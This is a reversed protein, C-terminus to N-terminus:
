RAGHLEQFARTFIGEPGFIGIRVETWGGLADIKWLDQVEPYRDAFERGVSPDRLADLVQTAGRQAAVPRAPIFSEFDRREGRVADVARSRGLEVKDQSEAAVFASSGRSRPTHHPRDLTM